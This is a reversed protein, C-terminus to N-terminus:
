ASFVAWTVRRVDDFRAARDFHLARLERRAVDGFRLANDEALQDLLHAGREAIVGPADCGVHRKVRREGLRAM